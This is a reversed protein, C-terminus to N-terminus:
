EEWWKYYEPCDERTGVLHKTEDNYPICWRYCDGIAIIPLYGIINSIYSLIDCTWVRDKRNRAIIKDFPQLTNIDFKKVKPKDWFRVFKSWDRQEKSPFLTCEGNRAYVSRGDKTLALLLLSNEKSCFNLRIPYYEDTYMSIERFTVEGHTISYFKTGKPCGKLIKTLDLNENM